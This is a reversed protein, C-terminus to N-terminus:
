KMSPNSPSNRADGPSASNNKGKDLKCTSAVTDVKSVHFQRQENKDQNEKSASAYMGHVAVTQGVYSALDQGGMLAVIKDHKERLVYNGGQSEVCGKLKKETPQQTQTQSQTNPSM